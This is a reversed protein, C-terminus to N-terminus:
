KGYDENTRLECNKERTGSMDWYEVRGNSCRVIFCHLATDNITGVESAQVGIHLFKDNNRWGIVRESLSSTFISGTDNADLKQCVLIFTYDKKFEINIAIRSPNLNASTHNNLEFAKNKYKVHQTYIVGEEAGSPPYESQIVKGEMIDNFVSYKKIKSLKPFLGLPLRASLWTRPKYTFGINYYILM